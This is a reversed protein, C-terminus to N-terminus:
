RAYTLTIILKNSYLVNGQLQINYEIQHICVFIFVLSIFNVGPVEICVNLFNHM